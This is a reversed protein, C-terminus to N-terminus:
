PTMVVLRGDQVTGEVHKGSPLVACTKGQACSVVRGTQEASVAGVVVRIKITSGVALGRARFASADVPQGKTLPRTATAGTPVQVPPRGPFVEREAVDIAGDLNEGTRVARTAVPVQALLRITATAWSSCPRGDRGQGLLRLSVRGSGEIPSSVEARDVRCGAADQVTFRSVEVRAGAVTTAQDLAAQAMPSVTAGASSSSSALLLSVGSLLSLMMAM